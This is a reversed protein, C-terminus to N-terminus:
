GPYGDPYDLDSLGSPQHQSCQDAYQGCPPPCLYPEDRFENPDRDANWAAYSM